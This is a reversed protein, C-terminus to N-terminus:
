RFSFSLASVCLACLPASFNIRTLFEIRRQRRLTSGRRLFGLNRRNPVNPQMPPSIVCPEAVIRRHRRKLPVVIQVRRLLQRRPSPSNPILARNCLLNERHRIVVIEPLTHHVRQLQQAHQLACLHIHRIRQSHFVRLQLLDGIQRRLPRRQEGHASGLLTRCLHNGFHFPLPVGGPQKEFLTSIISKMSTALPTNQLTHFHRLVSPNCVPRKRIPDAIM